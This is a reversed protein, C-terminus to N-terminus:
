SAVAGYSSPVSWCTGDSYFLLYENTANLTYTATGAPDTPDPQVIVSAGSPVSVVYVSLFQQACQVAKPLTITISTKSAFVEVALTNASLRLSKHTRVITRVKGEEIFYGESYNM